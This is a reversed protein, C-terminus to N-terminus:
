LWRLGPAIRATRKAYARWAEGFQEAMMKEEKPVRSVYLFTCAALILVGGIWNQVLLPQALSQLWIAAYMPHRMLRYVGQTVLTHGERLELAPSWNRGLDAHSRWFVFTGLGALAAGVWTAWDPLAYAFGDFFPTTVTVTPLLVMCVFMAGLAFEEAVDMRQATIPTAKATRAHPLRIVISLILMAAWIWEGPTPMHRTWVAYAICALLVLGLLPQQVFARRRKPATPSM